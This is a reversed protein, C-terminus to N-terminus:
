HRKKTKINQKEIKNNEYKQNLEDISLYGRVILNEITKEGLISFYFHQHPILLLSDEEKTLIYTQIDEQSKREYAYDLIELKKKMTDGLENYSINKIIVSPKM